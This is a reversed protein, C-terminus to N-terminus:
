KKEISDAIAKQLPPNDALRIDRKFWVLNIAM